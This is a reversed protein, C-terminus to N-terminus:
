GAPIFCLPVFENNSSLGALCGATNLFKLKEVFHEIKDLSFCSSALWDDM